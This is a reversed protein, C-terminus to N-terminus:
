RASHIIEIVVRKAKDVRMLADRYRPSSKHRDTWAEAHPDGNEQQLGTEVPPRRRPPMVCM